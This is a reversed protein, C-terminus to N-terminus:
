GDRLVRARPSTMVQLAELARQAHDEQSIAIVWNVVVIVLIIIPDMKDEGGSALLSLGAAGLLVVIMPDCLQKLIRRALSIKRPPTLQNPGNQALREEGQAQTLGEFTTQHQSVLEEIPKSQWFQM